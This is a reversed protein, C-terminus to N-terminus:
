GSIRNLRRVALKVVWPALNMVPILYGAVRESGLALSVFRCIWQRKRSMKAYVREWQEALVRPMRTPVSFHQSICDAAEIGSEIAWAMGEGTFPEVYGAADGAVLLAGFGVKRSRTLPPTMKLDAINQTTLEQMGSTRLLTNISAAIEIRGFPSESKSPRRIAAALDVRGDELRVLGVYGNTGCIMHITQSVVHDMSDLVIGVGIPGAPFQTFPLWQSVGGGSLGSALIVADFECLESAQRDSRLSVTVRDAAVTMVRAECNLRLTVGRHVAENALTSDMARRSVAVGGPLSAAIRQEGLRMEWRSLPANALETIIKDCRIRLLSAIAALNLCCGCIKDRPFNARDVLLVDHGRDRLRIAASTGAPGAGIVLLKPFPRSSSAEMM